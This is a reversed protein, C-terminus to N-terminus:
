RPGAPRCLRAGPPFGTSGETPRCHRRGPPLTSM